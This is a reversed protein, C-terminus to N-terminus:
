DYDGFLAPNQRRIWWRRVLVAGVAVTVIGGMGAFIWLIPFGPSGTTGTPVATTESIVPASQRFSVTVASTAAATQLTSGIPLSAVTQGTVAATANAAANGARNAIAFYSFGPTTATFYWAGGAEYQYTTPLEAWTGDHYRMMVIDAPALNHEELWNESVAFSITGSSISSPNVAVPSIVVIGAIIRGEPSNSTSGGDTVLMDASGLNETPVLSASVIAYSYDTSGARIPEGIAFNMTGGRPVGPASVAYSIPRGSDGSTDTGTGGSLTTTVAMTTVTTVPVTTGTTVPVTTTPAAPITTTVPVTTQTTLPVSTITIYDPVSKTDSTTRDSVTLSVTFTGVRTYTHTPDQLASTNGDGFDWSWSTPSGTSTDNFTVGLPADGSLPTGTFNAVLLPTAASVAIQIQVSDDDVTANVQATGAGAPTYTTTSAGDSTTRQQPSIGGSGSVLTFVVPIGDPVLGGASTDYGTNNWTMNARVVSTGDTGISLPSVTIGLRLWSDMSANAVLASSDPTNTGWWNDTADMTSGSGIVTLGVTNNYLRCFHLSGGAARMASANGTSGASGASGTGGGNSGGAGGNAATCGTFTSSLVTVAGGVYLAGGSGGTGGNGGNGSINPPCSTDGELCIHSSDSSHIYGGAGGNGGRGASNGTVSADTMTIITASIAGGNGASGGTGGDKGAGGAGASCGTISSKTVEAM